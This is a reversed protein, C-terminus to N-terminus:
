ACWLSRRLWARACAESTVPRRRWKRGRSRSFRWVQLAPAKVCSHPLEITRSPLRPDPCLVGKCMVRPAPRGDPGAGLPLRHHLRMQLPSCTRTAATTSGSGSGGAVPGAATAATADAELAEWLDLSARGSGDTLVSVRGTRPDTHSLDPVYRRPPPAALVAAPAPPARNTETTARLQGTQGFPMAM